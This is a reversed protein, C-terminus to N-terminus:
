PARQAVMLRTWPGASANFYIRRGDASFVPHPDSRRWSAAGGGNELRHVVFWTGATLDGVLVERPDHEGSVARDATFLRGGPACSPHGAGLKPITVTSVNRGSALDALALGGPGLDLVARSEPHWAPHGWKRQGLFRGASLDYVILGSRDSARGSRFDGDGPTSMKFMVRTADPSLVPFFISLPRDGFRQAIWQPYAKKVQEATVPTRVEGTRAHILELDRFEAPKFHPSYVPVLDSTPQGFGIQRDRALVREEGTSVDVCVVVWHGDRLDHFAVCRGGAVWQQCAARHADEVTVGRALVRQAGTAREVLRIEGVYAKRTTSAYLVVYRGDPSEPCAVYYAHISHCADTLVPSVKAQQWGALPDAAALMTLSALLLAYL